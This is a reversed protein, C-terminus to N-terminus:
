AVFLHQMRVLLLMVTILSDVSSASFVQMPEVLQYHLRDEDVLVLLVHLLLALLEEVEEHLLSVLDFLLESVLVEVHVMHPLLSELHDVKLLFWTGMKCSSVLPFRLFAKRVGAMRVSSQGVNGPLESFCLSSDHSLLVESLFVMRVADLNFNASMSSM